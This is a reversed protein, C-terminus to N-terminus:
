DHLIADARAHILLYEAGCSELRTVHAAYADRLRQWDNFSDLASSKPSSVVRTDWVQFM